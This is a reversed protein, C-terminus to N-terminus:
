IAHSAASSAGWCRISIRGGASTRVTLGEVKRSLWLGILLIVIAGIATLVGTVILPLLAGINTMLEQTQREIM